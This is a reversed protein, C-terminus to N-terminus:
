EIAKDYGDDEEDEEAREGLEPSSPVNKSKQL